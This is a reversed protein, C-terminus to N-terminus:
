PKYKLSYNHLQPNASTKLGCFLQIRLDCFGCIAFQWLQPLDAFRFSILGAFKRIQSRRFKNASRRGKPALDQFSVLPSSQPHVCCHICHICHQYIFRRRRKMQLWFRFINNPWFFLFLIIVNPSLKVDTRRLEGTAAAGV